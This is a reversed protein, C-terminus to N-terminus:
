WEYLVDKEPPFESLQIGRPYPESTITEPERIEMSELELPSLTGILAGEPYQEIPHEDLIQRIRDVAEESLEDVDEYAVIDSGDM